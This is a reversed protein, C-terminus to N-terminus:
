TYTELNTDYCKSSVNANVIIINNNNYTYQYNKQDVCNKKAMVYYGEPWRRRRRRQTCM